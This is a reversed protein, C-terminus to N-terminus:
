GLKGCDLSVSYGAGIYLSLFFGADVGGGGGGAFHGGRAFTAVADVSPAVTLGTPTEPPSLSFNVEM